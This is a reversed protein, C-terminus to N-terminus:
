SKANYKWEYTNYKNVHLFELSTLEEQNLQSPKLKTNFTKEFSSKITEKTDKVHLAKGLEELSVGSFTRSDVHLPISGHQYIFEKTRRQANGGVKKGEIIIDYAEFGVQCFASKSLKESMIDKAFNAEFGLTTYFHLLFACLYEYSEKVSKNTLLFTPIILSYSLDFGHFLLGGGTARRTFNDGFDSFNDITHVDQFRGITFTDKDWSYLRLIPLDDQKFNEILAEDIAMNHAASM